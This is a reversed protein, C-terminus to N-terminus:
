VPRYCCRTGTHVGDRLAGAIVEDAAAIKALARRIAKGVAIRAKEEAGAFERVRGALGAAASLEGLLWDRESRIRAARGADNNAEHEDLEAELTALWKRYHSTAAQDLVPQATGGAVADPGPGAALEVATLEYGPNALLTALYTMGVSHEVQV